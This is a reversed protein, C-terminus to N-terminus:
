VILGQARAKQYYEPFENLLGALMEQQGSADKSDFFGANDIFRGELEDLSELFAFSAGGVGVFQVFIPLQSMATLLAKTEAPDQPQGDTVFIAFTPYPATAKVSQTGAKSKHFFGGSSGNTSLDVNAFGAQEIIWRLAKAYETGNWRPRQNAIFDKCNGLNVSGLDKVTNSFFAAPVEGDDDFVLGAAFAMDAVRQIEGSNYLGQASGSDDFIALVAAKNAEPDIGIKRLSVTTAKVLSVLHPAEEQVKTLSIGM